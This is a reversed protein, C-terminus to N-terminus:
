RQKVAVVTALIERETASVKQKRELFQREISLNVNPIHLLSQEIKERLEITESSLQNNISILIAEPSINVIPLKHISEFIANPPIENTPLYTAQHTQVYATQNHDQQDSSINATPIPKTELNKISNISSHEFYNTNSSELRQIHASKIQYNEPLTEEM